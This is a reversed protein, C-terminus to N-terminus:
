VISLLANKKDWKFSSVNSDYPYSFIFPFNRGSIDKYEAYYKAMEIVIDFEVM